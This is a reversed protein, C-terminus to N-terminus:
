AVRVPEGGGDGVPMPGEAKHVVIKRGLVRSLANIEM